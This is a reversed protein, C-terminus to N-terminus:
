RKWFSSYASGSFRGLLLKKNREMAMVYPIGRVVNRDGEKKEKEHERM